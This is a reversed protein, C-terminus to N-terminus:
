ARFTAFSSDRAMRRLSRGSFSLRVASESLARTWCASVLEAIPTARTPRISMSPLGFHGARPPRVRRPSHAAFCKRSRDKTFLKQGAAIEAAHQPTETPRSVPRPLTAVFSILLDCQEATMDLGPAKYNKKWPPAARPFGPVELGLESACAQLTFDRLTAVHAKWGFRGIRGDKLRAVRGTIPLATQQRNMFFLSVVLRQEAVRKIEAQALRADPTGGVVCEDIFEYCCYLVGIRAATDLELVKGVEVGHWDQGSVAVVDTTEVVVDLAGGRNGHGANIGGQANQPALHAVLFEKEQAGSRCTCSNRIQQALRHHAFPEVGHSGPLAAPQEVHLAQDFAAARVQGVQVSLM